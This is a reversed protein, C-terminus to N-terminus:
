KVFVTHHNNHYVSSSIHEQFKQRSLNPSCTLDIFDLWTHWIEHAENVVPVNQSNSNASPIRNWDRTSQMFFLFSAYTFTNIRTRELSAVLITANFGHWVTQVESIYIIKCRSLVLVFIQFTQVASSVARRHDEQNLPEDQCLLWKELLQQRFRRQM